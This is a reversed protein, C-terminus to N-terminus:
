HKLRTTQTKYYTYSKERQNLSIHLDIKYLSVYTRGNNGQIQNDEFGSIYNRLEKLKKCDAEYTSNGLSGILHFSNTCIKNDIKDKINLVSIYLKEYSDKQGKTIFLHKVASASTVVVSFLIVLAILVEITIMANKM